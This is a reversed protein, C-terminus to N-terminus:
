PGTSRRLGKPNWRVISVRGESVTMEALSANGGSKSIAGRMRSGSPSLGEQDTRQGACVISQDSEWPAKQRLKDKGSKSVCVGSYGHPAGQTERTGAREKQYRATTESGTLNKGGQRKATALSNGEALHVAEAESVVPIEPSLGKVQAVAWYRTEEPKVHNTVEGYASNEVRSAALRQRPQVERKGTHPLLELQRM